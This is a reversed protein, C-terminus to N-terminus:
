ALPLAPLLQFLKTFRSFEQAASPSLESRTWQSHGERQADRPKSWHIQYLPLLRARDHSLGHIAGEIFASLEEFSFAAELSNRSDQNFAPSAHPTFTAPFEDLTRWHRPRVHDFLWIGCASRNRVDAIDHLCRKVAESAPLHHLAFVSSILDVSDPVSNRFNTMDGLQLSVRSDLGAEKLFRNGLRVMTHSLEMGIIKIDPRRQALYALYQGSGSGLDVVTGGKRVLHSTALANFHYIPILAGTSSGQNHFAEASAFVDM